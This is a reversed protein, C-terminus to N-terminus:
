SFNINPYKSKIEKLKPIEGGGNGDSFKKFKPCGEVIYKLGKETIKKNYYMGLSSLEKCNEGIKKLSEDTLKYNRGVAIVELNKCGEAIAILGTDTLNCSRHMYLRKLNKLYKGIYFAAEDTERYLSYTLNLSTLKPNQSAIYKIGESKVQRSRPIALETLKPFNESSIPILDKDELLPSQLRLYEINKGLRAIISIVEGMSLVSEVQQVQFDYLLIELRNVNPCAMLCAEIEKLTGLSDLDTVTISTIVKGNEPVIFKKLSQSM